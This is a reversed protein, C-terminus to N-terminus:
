QCGSARGPATAIPDCSPLRQALLRASAPRPHVAAEALAAPQEALAADVRDVAADAVDAPRRHLEVAVCAAKGELLIAREVHAHRLFAFAGGVPEVACVLVLDGVDEIM